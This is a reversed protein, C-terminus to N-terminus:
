EGPLTVISNGSEPMQVLLALYDEPIMVLMNYDFNRTDNEDIQSNKVADLYLKKRGSLQRNAALDRYVDDLVIPSTFILYGNSKPYDFFLTSIAANGCPQKVLAATLRTDHRAIILGDLQNLTNDWVADPSIAMTCQGHSLSHIRQLDTLLHMNDSLFSTVTDAAFRGRLQERNWLSRMREDTIESGAIAVKSPFIDHHLKRVLEPLM